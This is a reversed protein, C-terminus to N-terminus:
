KPILFISHDCCFISCCILFHDRRWLFLLSSELVDHKSLSLLICFHEQLLLLAWLCWILWSVEQCWLCTFVPSKFDFIFEFKFLLSIEFGTFELSILFRLLLIFFEIKSLLILWSVQCSYSWFCRTACFQLCFCLSIVALIVSGSSDPVKRLLTLEEKLLLFSPLTVSVTALALYWFAVLFWAWYFNLCEPLLWGLLATM